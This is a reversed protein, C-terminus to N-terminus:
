KKAATKKTTKKAKAKSNPVTARKTATEGKNAKKPRGPKRDAVKSLDSEKILYAKGVQMAPLQGARVMQRVRSDNVGLREAAQQTSLLNM